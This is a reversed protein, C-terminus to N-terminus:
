TPVNKSIGLFVGKKLFTGVIFKVNPKFKRFSLDLSDPFLWQYNSYINKILFSDRMNNNEKM